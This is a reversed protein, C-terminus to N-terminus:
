DGHYSQHEEAITPKTSQVDDDFCLCKLVDTGSRYENIDLCHCFTTLDDDRPALIFVLHEINIIGGHQNESKPDTNATAVPKGQAIWNNKGTLPAAREVRDATVNNCHANASFM